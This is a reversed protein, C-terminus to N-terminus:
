LHACSNTFFISNEQITHPIKKSRKENDTFIQKGIKDEKEKLSPEGFSVLKLEWVVRAEGNINQRMKPLNSIKKQVTEEKQLFVHIVTQVPSSESVEHGSEMASVMVPPLLGTLHFNSWFICVPFSTRYLFYYHIIFGTFSLDLYSSTIHDNCVRIHNILFSNQLILSM